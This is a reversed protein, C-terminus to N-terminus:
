PHLDQLQRIQSATYLVGLEVLAEGVLELHAPSLVFELEKLRRIVLQSQEEIEENTVVQDLMIKMFHPHSMVQEDLNFMGTEKDFFM